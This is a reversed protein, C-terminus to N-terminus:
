QQNGQLGHCSAIHPSSIILPECSCTAPPQRQNEQIQCQNNVSWQFNYLGLFDHINSSVNVSSSLMRWCGAMPSASPALWSPAANDVGTHCAARHLNVSARSDDQLSIFMNGLQSHLLGHVERCPDLASFQALTPATAGVLGIGWGGVVWGGGM